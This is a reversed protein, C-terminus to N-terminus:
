RREINLAYPIPSVALGFVEDEPLSDAGRPTFRYRHLLRCAQLWIM